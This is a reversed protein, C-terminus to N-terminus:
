TIAVKDGVRIRAGGLLALHIGFWLKGKACRAASLAQWPEKTTVGTHQNICIMHCRRCKGLVEFSCDGITLARWNDEGFPQQEAGLDSFEFNSRFVDADIPIMNNHLSLERVSATHIGLFPSENSFLISLKSGPKRTPLSSWSRSADKVIRINQGTGMVSLTCRVGLFQSLAVSIAESKYASVQTVEGCIRTDSIQRLDSSRSMLDVEFTTGALSLILKDRELDIVPRVLALKAHKKQSLISHDDLSLIAWKRDFQLGAESVNWSINHPVLYAACSKVPYIALKTIITTTSRKIAIDHVQKKPRLELFFKILFNEWIDIDKATTMAGFSIRIIGTPGGHIVDRPGSCVHGKAHHSQLEESTINCYSETVSPNCVTGVRLHIGLISAATQVDAYGIISGDSQQLHMAMIPSGDEFDLLKVLSNGNFHLLRTMRQKAYSALFAIHTRIREFSGFLRAHSTIASSLAIIAHFPLTGAELVLHYQRGAKKSVYFSTTASVADVTGGSFVRLQKVLDDVKASKKILLGGLGTPYGFMKYFSLCIFDPSEPLLKLPGTSVLASADFLTYQTETTAIYEFQSTFHGTANSRGSWAILTPMVGSTSQTGVTFSSWSSAHNRLGIISTHSDLAYQYHWKDRHAGRILEGVLRISATSGSTFVLDYSGTNDLFLDQLVLGRTAAIRASTAISSPSITHPNGYLNAILDEAHSRILSAAYLTTGAHDLYCVDSLQPYEEARIKELELLYPSPNVM